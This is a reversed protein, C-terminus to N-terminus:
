HISTILTLATLTGDEASIAKAVDTIRRRRQEAGDLAASLAPKTLARRPIPAPTLGSEHLRSGWFPQDAIFPVIVSPTASEMAAHVTGIGGHHM